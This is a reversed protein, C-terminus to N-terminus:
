EAPEHLFSELRQSTRSQSRGNELANSENLILSVALMRGVGHPWARDPFTVAAFVDSEHAGV